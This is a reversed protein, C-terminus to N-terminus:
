SNIRMRGNYLRVLQRCVTLGLGIGNSTLTASRKLKGFMALKSNDIQAKSMGTGTDMVAVHLVQRKEDYYVVVQILGRTMSQTANKFLNGLALKLADKDGCLRPITKEIGNSKM